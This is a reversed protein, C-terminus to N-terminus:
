IGELIIFADTAVAAMSVPFTISSATVTVTMGTGNEVTYPVHAFAVPFTIVQATATTNEYGNAYIIVKKYGDGIFPESYDLSGASTGALTLLDNAFGSEGVTIGNPAAAGISVADAMRAGLDERQTDYFYDSKKLNAM